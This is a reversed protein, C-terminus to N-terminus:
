PRITTLIKSLVPLGTGLTAILPWIELGDAFKHSSTEPVVFAFPTDVIVVTFPLDESGVIVAHAQDNWYLPAKFRQYLEPSLL